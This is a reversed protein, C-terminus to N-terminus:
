LTVAMPPLVRGPISGSPTGAIRVAGMARHFPEANPDAEITPRHFGAARAAALAPAFLARGIGQGLASPDVFMMGVAGDPPRGDVTAFGLARGEREAPATRREGVESPRVTLEERCSPVFAADYGWHAKSRLAPETLEGAEDPRADRLLM